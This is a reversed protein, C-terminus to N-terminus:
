GLWSKLFFFFFELYFTESGGFKWKGGVKREGGFNWKRGFDWVLLISKGWGWADEGVEFGDERERDRKGSERVNKGSEREDSERESNSPFTEM